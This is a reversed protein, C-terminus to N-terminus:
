SLENNSAALDKIIGALHKRYEHMAGPKIANLTEWPICQGGTLGTVLVEAIKIVFM